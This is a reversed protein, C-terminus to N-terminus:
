RRRMGLVRKRYTFTVGATPGTDTSYAVNFAVAHRARETVTFNLPITGDPALHDPIRAISPRSVRRQGVFGAARTEIDAPNYQQGPHVLLRRRSTATM